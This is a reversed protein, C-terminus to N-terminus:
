ALKLRKPFRGVYRSQKDGRSICQLVELQIAPLGCLLPMTGFIISRYNFLLKAPLHRSHILDSITETPKTILEFGTSGINFEYTFNTDFYPTSEQIAYYADEYCTRGEFLTDLFTNEVSMFLASALKRYDFDKFGLRRCENLLDIFFHINIKNSPEDFYCPHIQLRSMIHHVYNQGM